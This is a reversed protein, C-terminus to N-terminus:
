RKWGLTRLDRSLWNLALRTAPLAGYVDLLQSVSFLADNDWSSEFEKRIQRSHGLEFSISSLEGAPLPRPYWHLWPEARDTAQQSPLVLSGELRVPYNSYLRLRVGFSRFWKEVLAKYIGLAGEYVARTRNLLQQSSYIEWIMGQSELRDPHPWPDVIYNEGDEELSLLYHRITTLHQWHYTRRTPFSATQSGIEVEEIFSLTDRIRIKRSFFESKGQVDIALAWSSERVADVSLSELALNPLKLIDNLSRELQDKTFVWPWLKSNPLPALMWQPWDPDPETMLSLPLNVVPPPKKTGKYWSTLFGSDDGGIGLPATQGFSDVPGIVSFLNGLGKHWAEMARRLEEGVEISAGVQPAQSTDTVWRPKFNQLVLSALGPDSSALSTMLPRIFDGDSTDIAITLPSIWRDSTSQIDDASITGELLAQAAYWERFIPLTFDVTGNLENVLRSNFLERQEILSGCVDRPEVRKGSSIAKVALDQLIPYLGSANEMEPLARSAIQTVLNSPRPTTLDTNESLVSGIMVAFLPSKLADRISASWSYTDVLELSRGSIRNILEMSQNEALEPMLIKRGSRDELGPLPRCTVVVVAKSYTDSYVVVKELLNNAENVGMEDLGDIIVMVGQVSPRSFDRTMREIYDELPEGLDRASVFLPFPQSSDDLSLDVAKQFLREAALTKGTGQDGEVRLVGLSPFELLDGISQDEALSIATEDSVSLTTWMSKCRSISLRKVEQLRKFRILPAPDRFIRVVEDYVAKEIHDTLAGVKEVDRWKAYGSERVQEILNQTKEDRATSPLRFILLRIGFNICTTIEDVVPKTTRSGVLWVVLDSEQVKRLYHQPQSESSAPTSEFTWPQTFPIACLTRETINRACNMEDDMVSSIFTVLDAESRVPENNM